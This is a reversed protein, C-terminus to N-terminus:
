RSSYFSDFIMTWLFSGMVSWAGIEFFVSMVLAKDKLALLLVMFLVYLGIFVFSMIFQVYIWKPIMKKELKFIKRMRRSPMIFKKPYYKQHMHISKLEKKTRIACWYWGIFYLIGMWRFAKLIKELYSM